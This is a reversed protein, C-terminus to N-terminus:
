MNEIIRDIIKDSLSDNKNEIMDIDKHVLSVNEGSKFTNHFSLNLLDTETYIGNIDIFLENYKIVCYGDEKDDFILMYVEGNIKKSVISAYYISNEFYRNKDEKEFNFSIM